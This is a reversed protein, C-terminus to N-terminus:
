ENQETCLKWSFRPVTTDVALPDVLNECRLGGVTVPVATHASIVAICAFLTVLYRKM